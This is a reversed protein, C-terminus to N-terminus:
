RRFNHFLVAVLYGDIFVIAVALYIVLAVIVITSLVDWDSAYGDGLIICCLTLNLYLMTLIAEMAVTYWVLSLVNGARRKRIAFTKFGLRFQLGLLVVLIALVIITVLVINHDLIAIVKHVLSSM